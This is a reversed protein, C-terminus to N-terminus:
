REDLHERRGIRWTTLARSAMVVPVRRVGQSADRSRSSIQRSSEATTTTSRSGNSGSRGPARPAARTPRVAPSASNSCPHDRRRVVIGSLSLVDELDVLATAMGADDADALVKALLTTKGYRRPGLLRMSHGGEALALLASAESRRDIMDEPSLPGSFHFPNHESPM